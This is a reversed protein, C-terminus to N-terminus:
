NDTSCIAVNNWANNSEEEKSKVECLLPLQSSMLAEFQKLESLTMSPLHQVAFQGVLLDMERTGQRQSQYLLRKRLRTLDDM